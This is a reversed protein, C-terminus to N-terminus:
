GSSKGQSTRGLATLGRASRASRLSIYCEFAEPVRLLLATLWLSELKEEMAVILFLGRPAFMNGSGFSPPLSSRTSGLGVHLTPHVSVHEEIVFLYFRAHTFRPLM